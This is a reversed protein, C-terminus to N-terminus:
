STLAIMHNAGCDMDVTEYQLMCRVLKAQVHLHLYPHPLIVTVKAVDDYDGHGLCGNVGSGFTM